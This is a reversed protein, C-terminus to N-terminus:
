FSHVNESNYLEIFQITIIRIVTANVTNSIIEIPEDVLVNSISSPVAEASNISEVHMGVCFGEFNVFPAGSTGGSCPIHHTTHTASEV